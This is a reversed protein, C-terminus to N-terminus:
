LKYIKIYDVKVKMLGSTAIIFDKYTAKYNVSTIEDSDIYLNYLDGKKELTIECGTFLSNIKGSKTNQVLRSREKGNTLNNVWYQKGFVDLMFEVENKNHDGYRFILGCNTQESEEIKVKTIIKFNEPFNDIGSCKVWEYDSFGSKSQIIMNGNDVDIFGVICYDDYKNNFENYYILNESNSNDILKQTVSKPTKIILLNDISITVGADVVFGINNVKKEDSNFTKSMYIDKFIYKSFLVYGRQMYKNQGFENRPIVILIENNEKEIGKSYIWNGGLFGVENTLSIGCNNAFSANPVVRLCSGYEKGDKDKYLDYIIGNNDSHTNSFKINLKIIIDKTDNYDGIDIPYYLYNKKSATNSIKISGNEVAINFSSSNIFSMLDKQSNFLNYYVTDTKLSTAKSIKSEALIIGNEYGCLKAKKYHLIADSYLKSNFFNDGEAIENDYCNERQKTLADQSQKNIALNCKNILGDLDACKSVDSCAKGKQFLEKAKTYNGKNFETKGSALFGQCCQSYSHSTILTIALMLFIITQKIM